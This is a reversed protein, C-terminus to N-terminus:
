AKGRILFVYPSARKFGQNQDRPAWIRSISHITSQHMAREQCGQGRYFVAEIVHEKPSLSVLLLGFRSWNWNRQPSKAALVTRLGCRTVTPACAGLSVNRKCGWLFMGRLGVTDFWGKSKTVRRGFNAWAVSKIIGMVDSAM